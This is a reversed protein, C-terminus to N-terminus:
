GQHNQRKRQEIQRNHYRGSIFTPPCPLTDTKGSLDDKNSELQTVLERLGKLWREIKVNGLTFLVGKDDLTLLLWAQSDDIAKEVLDFAM